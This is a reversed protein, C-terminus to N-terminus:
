RNEPPGASRKAIDREKMLQEIIDASNKLTGASAEAGSRLTDPILRERLLWLHHEIDANTFM